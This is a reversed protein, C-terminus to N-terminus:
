FPLNPIYGRKGKIMLKTDKLNDFSLIILGRKVKIDM